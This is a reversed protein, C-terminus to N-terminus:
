KPRKPSKLFKGDITYFIHGNGLTIRVLRKTIGLPEYKVRGTKGQLKQM